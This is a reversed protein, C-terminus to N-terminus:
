DTDELHLYVAPNVLSIYTYVVAQILRALVFAGVALAGTKGKFDTFMAVLLTAFILGTFLINTKIVVGKHKLGLRSSTSVANLVGKGETMAVPISFFFIVALGIVGVLLVLMALAPYLVNRTRLFASGLVFYLVFIVAMAALIVLSLGLLTRWRRLADVFAERIKIPRKEHYDRVIRVYMGYSLIDIVYTILFFVIFTALSGALPAFVSGFDPATGLNEARTQALLVANTIRLSLKAMYLIFATYIVTTIIRPIYIKPETRLLHLTEKLVALLKM